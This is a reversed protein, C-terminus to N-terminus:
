NTRLTVMPNVRAARLAPILSALGAAVGLVAAIVVWTLPDRATVGFLLHTIAGGLGLATLAHDSRGLPAAQAATEEFLALL